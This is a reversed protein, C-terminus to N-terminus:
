LKYCKDILFCGTFSITRKGRYYEMGNLRCIEHVMMGFAEMPAVAGRPNRCPAGPYTCTDCYSCSGAGMALMDPFDVWLRETLTRLNQSHRRAAEMMGEGDFDDELKGVTQVILGGSYKRLRAECDELSGCAPPCSWSKGYRGCKNLECAARVDPYLTITSCDLKGAADFGADLATKIFDDIQM